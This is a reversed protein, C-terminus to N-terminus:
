LIFVNDYICQMATSNEFYKLVGCTKSKVKYNNLYMYMYHRKINFSQILIQHNIIFTQICM